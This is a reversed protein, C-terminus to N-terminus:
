PKAKTAFLGLPSSLESLKTQGGRNLMSASGQGFSLVVIEMWLVQLRFACGESTGTAYALEASHLRSNFAVVPLKPAVLRFSFCGGGVQSGQAGDAMFDCSGNAPEM